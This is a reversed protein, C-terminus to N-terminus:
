RHLSAEFDIKEQANLHTTKHILNLVVSQFEFSEWTRNYYCCKAKDVDYNGVFLTALHRFGYRTGESVCHIEIKDNFKFIRAM